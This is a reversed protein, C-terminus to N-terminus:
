LVGSGDGRAALKGDTVTFTHDAYSAVRTDHTVIILAAQTEKSLTSLLDLTDEGTQSDLNGTPEDALILKPKAVLARAIAVRQQQGGSLQATTHSARDSLGVRELLAQARSRADSKGRGALLLPLSINEEASLGPILRFNQFVLGLNSRRFARTQSRSLASLKNGDFRVHGQDCPLIGGAMLLLTTKGSGSPGFLAVCEGAKVTLTVDNVAHITGGDSNYYKHAHHLELM